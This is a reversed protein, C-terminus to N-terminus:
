VIEEGAALRVFVPQLVSLCDRLSDLAAQSGPSDGAKASSELALASHRGQESGFQALLGKLQHAAGSAAALKGTEIGAQAEAMLRPYEDLFLAALESLLERDGGVRDLAQAYDILPMASEPQIPTEEMTASSPVQSLLAHIEDLLVDMRVPKSLYSDMGATFCLDRDGPMAHATMAIIPVHRGTSQETRRIHAAAELGDMDPMQVDMIILDFQEASAMQVAEVGTRALSAGIGARDLMALFLRQNV